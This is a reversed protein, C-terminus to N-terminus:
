SHEFQLVSSRGLGPSQQTKQEKPETFHGGICSSFRRQQAASYNSGEEFFEVHLIRSVRFSDSEIIHGQHASCRRRNTAATSGLREQYVELPLHWDFLRPQVSRSRNYRDYPTARRAHFFNSPRDKFPMFNLVSFNGVIFLGSLRESNLPPPKAAGFHITQAQFFGSFYGFGRHGRYRFLAQHRNFFGAPDFGVDFSIKPFLQDPEAGPFLQLSVCLAFERLRDDADVLFVDSRFSRGRYLVM